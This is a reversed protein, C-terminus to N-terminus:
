RPGGPPSPCVDVFIECLGLPLTSVVQAILTGEPGSVRIIRALLAFFGNLGDLLVPIDRRRGNLVAAADGAGDIIRGLDAGERRLTGGVREGLEASRDLLRGVQDPRATIVASLRNFDATLRTLTGGRDALTGSLGNIDDLLARIAQRDRWTADVVVAGNDVTRRLAPGQGSLGAAFVRLVTAVDDPDIARTLRYAPWAADSPERPDRTRAVHGGDRLFPGTAEDEGLDLALDKPGFVSVPEITAVTTGPIRVGRDLRFRVTVRGDRGLRLADVAGVAIGRIKVDSRGPDLGQGARGFTADYHTSGPHSPAAGVAVLAAAAAIVGTGALGFLLRARASITEDSM